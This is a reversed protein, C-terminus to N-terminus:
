LREGLLTCVRTAHANLKKASGDCVIQTICRHRPPPKQLAFIKGRSVKKPKDLKEPLRFPPEQLYGHHHAFQESYRGYEGNQERKRRVPLVVVISAQYSSCEAQVTTQCRQGQASSAEEGLM